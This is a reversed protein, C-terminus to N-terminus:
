FGNWMRTRKALFDPSCNLLHLSEPKPDDGLALYERINVAYFKDSILM